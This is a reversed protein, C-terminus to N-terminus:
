VYVYIDSYIPEGDVGAGEPLIQTSAAVAMRAILPDGTPLSRRMWGNLRFRYSSRQRLLLREDSVFRYARAGNALRAPTPGTFPVQLQEGVTEIVLDELEERQPEPVIYYRWYTSRAKFRLAYHVTQISESPNALELDVPYIGEATETPRSFLLDIFCLPNPEAVSYLIPRSLTDTVAVTDIVYKDERLARFELFVTPRCVETPPSVSTPVCRPEVLVPVGAIDRVVVREVGEPTAVKIEPGEVPLLAAGDVREGENLIVEGDLRHAQQNTFYFNQESPNTGVPIDTFNVFYPNNLSLVFSLRTWYQDEGGGDLPIGHKRLYSCLGEAKRVDYVVSFGTPEAMFLLGLSKM